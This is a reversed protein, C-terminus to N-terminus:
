VKLYSYTSGLRQWEARQWDHDIMQVQVDYHEGDNPMAELIGAKGELAEDIAQRLQLLASKNGFIRVDDHPLHQGYIHLVNM